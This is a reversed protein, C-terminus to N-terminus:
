RTLASQFFTLIERSADFDFATLGVTSEALQSEHGPWTHGGGEIEYLRISAENQCPGYTDIATTTGDNPDTDPLLSQEPLPVCVAISTWIAILDAASLVESTQGPSQEIIGGQFPIIPDGIGHIHLVQLPRSPAVKSAVDLAITGAVSAIGAITETRELAFRQAMFAGNSFGTIFANASPINWELVAEAIVDNLFDVDDIEPFLVPNSSQALDYNWHRAIGNPYAVICNFESALDNLATLRAMGRADQAFAHLAVVLFAPQQGGKVADPVHVLYTRTRAGQQITRTQFGDDPTPCGALSVASGALVMCAFFRKM